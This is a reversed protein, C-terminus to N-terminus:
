RNREAKNLYYSHGSSYKGGTAIQRLPRINRVDYYIIAAPRYTFNGQILDKMIRIEKEANLKTEEDWGSIWLLSFTFFLSFVIIFPLFTKM